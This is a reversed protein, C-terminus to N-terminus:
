RAKKGDAAAKQAADFLSAKIGFFRLAGPANATM